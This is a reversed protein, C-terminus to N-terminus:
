HILILRDLNLKEMTSINKKILVKVTILYKFGKTENLIDNFLNKINLTSAKSQVTPDKREVIQVKNSM